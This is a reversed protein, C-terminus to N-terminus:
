AFELYSRDGIEYTFGDAIEFPSGVYLFSNDALAKDASVLMSANYSQSFAVIASLLGKKSVSSQVMEFLETGDLESAASLQSIKLTAM